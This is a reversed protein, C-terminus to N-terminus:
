GVSGLLCQYSMLPSRCHKLEQLLELGENKLNTLSLSFSFIRRGGDSGWCRVQDALKLNITSKTEKSLELDMEEKPGM